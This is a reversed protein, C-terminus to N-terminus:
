LNEQCSTRRDTQKPMVLFTKYSDKIYIYMYTSVCNRHLLLNSSGCDHVMPELDLHLGDGRCKSADVISCRIEPGATILPKNSGVCNLCSQLIFTSKFPSESSM